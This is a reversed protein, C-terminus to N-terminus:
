KWSYAFSIKAKKEKVIEGSSDRTTISNADFSIVRGTSYTVTYTVDGDDHPISFTSYSGSKLCSKFDTLDAGIIQDTKTGVTFTVSTIDSGPVLHTLKKPSLLLVLVLAVACGIMVWKLFKRSTGNKIAKKKKKKNSM